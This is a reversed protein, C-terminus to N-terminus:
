NMAPDGIFGGAPSKTKTHLNPNTSKRLGVGSIPCCLIGFISSHAVISKGEFLSAQDFDILFRNPKGDGSLVERGVLYPALVKKSTRDGKTLALARERSLVFGEHGPTIGQCVVCSGRNINLVKASKLDTKDSLSSSIDVCERFDLEYEKASAGGGRCQYRCM